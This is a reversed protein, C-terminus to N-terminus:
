DATKQLYKEIVQRNHELHHLQLESAKSKFPDIERLIQMRLDFLHEKDGKEAEKVLDIKKLEEQTNSNQILFAMSNPAIIPKKQPPKCPPIISTAVKLIGDTTNPIVGSVM